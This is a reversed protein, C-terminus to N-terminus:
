RVLMVVPEACVLILGDLLEQSKEYPTKQDYM